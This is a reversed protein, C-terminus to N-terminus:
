ARDGESAVPLVGSRGCSWEGARMGVWACAGGLALLGLSQSVAEVIGNLSVYGVSAVIYTGYTTFTIPQKRAPAAVWSTGASRIGITEVPKRPPKVVNEVASTSATVRHVSPNRPRLRARASPVHTAEHPAASTPMVTAPYPNTACSRESYPSNPSPKAVIRIKTVANRASALTARMHQHQPGHPGTVSICMISRVPTDM